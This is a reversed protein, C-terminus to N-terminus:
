KMKSLRAFLKTVASQKEHPRYDYGLCWLTYYAFGLWVLNAVVLPLSSPLYVFEGLQATTTDFGYTWVAVLCWLLPVLVSLAGSVYQALVSLRMRMLFPLAFVEACVIAGALWAAGTRDISLALQLEPVFTDIRFLHVVAFVIMIGAAVWGFMSGYRSRTKPLAVTRPLAYKMGGLIASKDVAGYHRSDTSHRANDGALWVTDGHDRIIRKVVERGGVLAVIIDGVRYTGRTMCVVVQGQSLTPQM